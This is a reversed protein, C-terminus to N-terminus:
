VLLKNRFWKSLLNKEGIVVPLSEHETYPNVEGTVTLNNWAVLMGRKPKVKIDLLPFYTEGGEFDDNLYVILTWTRQGEAEIRAQQTEPNHYDHHAAFHENPGYRHVQMPDSNLEPHGYMAHLMGHVEQVVRHDSESSLYSTRSSRVSVDIKTTNNKDGIRSPAMSLTAEDILTQCQEATLFDDVKFMQVLSHDTIHELTRYSLLPIENVLSHM